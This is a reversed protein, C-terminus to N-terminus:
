SLKYRYAAQSFDVLSFSVKLTGTVSGVVNLRKMALAVPPAGAVIDAETPLGVAVITGGPRALAPAVQYGQRSAAFVIIGHAGYTTIRLVEAPIDQVKTYDIYEEAGLDKCLRDKEDGGDVAIVRMGM